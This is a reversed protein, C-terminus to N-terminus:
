QVIRSIPDTYVIEGGPGIIAIRFWMKKGAELGTFTYTRSDTPHQDWISAPSLPDATCMHMFSKASKVADISSIMEGGNPGSKVVHNKFGGLGSTSVPKRALDFGSSALATEDHQAVNMVYAVLTKLLLQLDTRRARKITIQVIDGSKAAVLAAGYADVATQLDTMSPLPSPFSTNGTLAKIIARAKTELDADSLKGFGSRIRPVQM